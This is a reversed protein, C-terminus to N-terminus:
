PAGKSLALDAVNRGLAQGATVDFRYHIGAIIRSLGAETVKDSLEGAREPFYSTLVRGAAASVCSHGSPYAPFNPLPIALPIANNAQSPRIYWYHYKSEWCGILADYLTAQLLAFVETAAREDLQSDEVYGAAISNWVGIPTPTGAASDWYKVGELQAPTINQALNLVEAIDTAFAASGFAPPPAARFQSGSTMFWPRVSGLTVGGPPLALPTFKDPGTPATGTWPAGFGDTKVHDIVQQGTVRGAEVGRRFHPHTRVPGAAGQEVVMQDLANAAGPFFFGLVQASAGAVAGRREELKSRGASSVARHQAVSVAAYIRAAALTNVRNAAVLDRAQQQWELTVLGSPSPTVHAAISLPEPTRESCAGAAGLALGVAVTRLLTRIYM